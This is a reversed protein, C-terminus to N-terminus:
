NMKQRLIAGPMDTSTTQYNSTRINGDVKPKGWLSQIHDHTTLNLSPTHKQPSSAQFIYVPIYMNNFLKPQLLYKMDLINSM